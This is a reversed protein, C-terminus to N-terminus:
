KEMNVYKAVEVNKVAHNLKVINAYKVAVVNKVAHNKNEM